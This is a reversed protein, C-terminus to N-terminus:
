ETNTNTRKSCLTSHLPKMEACGGQARPWHPMAAIAARATAEYDFEASLTSGCLARTLEAKVREVLEDPAQSALHAQYAEIGERWVDLPVCESGAMLDDGVAAAKELGAEDIM